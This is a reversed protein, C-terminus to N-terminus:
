SNPLHIHAVIEIRILNIGVVGVLFLLTNM